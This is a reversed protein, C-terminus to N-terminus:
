VVFPFQFQGGSAVRELRFGELLERRSDIGWEPESALGAYDRDKLVLSLPGPASTWLPLPVILLWPDDDSTRYWALGFLRHDAMPFTRKTVFAYTHNRSSRVVLEWRHRAADYLELPQRAAMRVQMGCRTLETAFLDRSYQNM